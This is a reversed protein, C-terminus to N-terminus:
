LVGRTVSRDAQLEKRTDDALVRGLDIPGPDEAASEFCEQLEADGLGERRLRQEIDERLARRTRALHRSVTAEHEGLLKGIGALTMGQAYYCGLRLRDRAQLAAVALTLAREILAQYRRREPDVGAPQSWVAAPSEDEPLPETRRSARLHDVHRQGLVARLWTALSSRGHFHRFLSARASGRETIGYLEAYLSDALERGNASDIAFASRYLVPRHESVFHEWAAEHGDACACALALDQIHLASLYAEIERSSPSRDAFAKTASTQLAEAWREISVEWHEAHARKHLRRALAADIAPPM